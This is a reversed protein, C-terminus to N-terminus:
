TAFLWMRPLIGWHRLENTGYCKRCLPAFHGMARPLIGWCRIRDAHTWWPVVEYVYLSAGM